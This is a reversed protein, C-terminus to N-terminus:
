AGSNDIKAFNRIAILDDVSLGCDYGGAIVVLSFEHLLHRGTTARQHDDYAHARTFREDAALARQWEARNEDHLIHIGEVYLESFHKLAAPDRQEVLSMYYDARLHIDYLQHAFWNVVVQEATPRHHMMLALTAFDLALPPAGPTNIM